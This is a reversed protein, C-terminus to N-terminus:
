LNTVPVPLSHEVAKLSRRTNNLLRRLLWLCLGGSVWTSIPLGWFVGPIGYVAALAGVLPIRLLLQRFAVALLAFRPQKLGLATGQLTLELPVALYGLASCQLGYQALNLVHESPKFIWFLPRACCLFLVMAPLIILWGLRISARVGATIRAMEGRGLNFGMFPALANSLGVLPVIVMFELRMALNLAAVGALELHALIMNVLGLALPGILVGLATPSGLNAIGKWHTFMERDPVVMPLSKGQRMLQRGLYVASVTWGFLSGLSSGAVGMGLQLIFVYKLAVSVVNGILIGKMPTLSDGHSLCVSECVMFYGM